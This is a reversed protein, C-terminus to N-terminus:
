SRASTLERLELGPAEREEFVTEADAINTHARYARITGARGCGQCVAIGVVVTGPTMDTTFPKQTKLPSITALAHLDGSNLDRIVEPADAERFVLSNQAEVKSGCEGCVKTFAARVALGIGLIGAAGMVPTLEWFRSMTRRNEGDGFILLLVAAIAAVLLVLGVLLTILSPLGPKFRHKIM